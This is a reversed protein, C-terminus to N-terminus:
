ASAGPPVAPAPGLELVMTAGRRDARWGRAASFLAAHQPDVYLVVIRRGDRAAAELRAAVEALVAPGFPNYLYVILDGAPLAFSSADAHHIEVPARLAGQREMIALNRRAITCLEASLEVGIVQRFPLQAATLIIRGKGCGLDVFSTQELEPAVERLLEHLGEVPTTQYRVAHRRAREPLGLRSVECTTATETGWRADFSRLRARRRRAAPSLQALHHRLTRAVARALGAPGAERLLAMARAIM